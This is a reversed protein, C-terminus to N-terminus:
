QSNVVVSRHSWSIQTHSWIWTTSAISFAVFLFLHTATQPLGKWQCLMLIKQMLFESIILFRSAILFDLSKEPFSFSLQHKIQKSLIRYWKKGNLFSRESSKTITFNKSISEVKWLAHLYEEKKEYKAFHSVHDRSISM